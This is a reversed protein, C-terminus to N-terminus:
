PLDDAPLFRSVPAPHGYYFGQGLVFGMDALIHHDAETEVGEALSTIGLDNVMQVLTAVVKQRDASARYIMRTMSMDFKLFDPRVESLEVLRTQGEGFDDFALRIDLERLAERLEEIANCHTVAKEHIELTLPQNPYLGRLRRLSDALAATGLEDPHTNVFLNCRLNYRMAIDIGVTRFVDSLQRVQNLQQAASFMRDPTSLGYLRSRGLIEYAVVRQDRMTVIPQFHPFVGGDNILRDFQMLALAQDCLDNEASTHGLTNMEERGVRFIVSAFQVLDGEKLRTACTIRQGNVYTGNTSNTDQLLLTDGDWLLEAHCKSVSRTELPLSANALRGVVFPSANIVIRRIPGFSDSQGSLFWRRVDGSSPSNSTPYQFSPTQNSCFSM